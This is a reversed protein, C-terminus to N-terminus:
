LGVWCCVHRTFLEMRFVADSPWSPSPELLTPSLVQTLFPGCADQQSNTLRSVSTPNIGLAVACLGALLMHSATRQIYKGAPVLISCTSSCVFRSFLIVLVVFCVDHYARNKPVATSRLVM